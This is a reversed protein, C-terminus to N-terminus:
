ECRLSADCLPARQPLSKIEGVIAPVAVFGLGISFENCDGGLPTGLDALGCLFQVAQPLSSSACLTQTGGTPASYPTSALTQLLDLMRMRGGIRGRTLIWQGDDLRRVEATFTTDRMTSNLSLAFPAPTLASHAVLVGHVVRASDAFYKPVFPPPGSPNSVSDPDVYWERLSRQDWRDEPLPAGDPGAADPLPEVTSALGSSAFLGMGVDDDDPLGNYGSLRLVINGLGHAFIGDVDFQNTGTLLLGIGRDINQFANDIGGPLDCQLKPDGLANNCSPGWACAAADGPPCTAVPQACTQKHDLDFGAYPCFRAGAEENTNYRVTSMVFDLTLAGGGVNTPAADLLEESCAFPVPNASPGADSSAADEAPTTPTPRDPLTVDALIQCALAASPAVLAIAIRLLTRTRLQM